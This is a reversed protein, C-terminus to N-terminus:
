KLINVVRRFRVGAPAFLVLLGVQLKLLQLYENLQDFDQKIFRKGVKLEVLVLNYFILDLRSDGIKEGKYKVPINVQSNILIGQKNAEKIIAREFYKERYGFGLENYVDLMIGIIIETKDKHLLEM